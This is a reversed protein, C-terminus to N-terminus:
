LTCYIDQNRSQVTFSDSPRQPKKSSLVAGSGLLQKIKRLDELFKLQVLPCHRLRLVELKPGCYNLFEGTLYQSSEVMLQDLTQSTLALLLSLTFENLLNCDKVLLHRLNPWLNKSRAERVLDCNRVLTSRILRQELNVQEDRHQNFPTQSFIVSHHSSRNNFSEVSPLDDLDDTKTASSLKQCSTLGPAVKADALRAVCNGTQSNNIRERRVASACNILEMHELEPLNHALVMLLRYSINLRGLSLMTVSQYSHKLSRHLYDYQSISFCNTEPEAPFSLLQKNFLTGTSSQRHNLKVQQHQLCPMLLGSTEHYGGSQFQGLRLAKMRKLQQDLLFKWRSCTRRLRIKDDFHLYDFVRMLIDDNLAEISRLNALFNRQEM